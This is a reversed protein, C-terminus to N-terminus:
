KVQFTFVYNREAIPGTSSAEPSVNTITIKKNMFEVTAGLSLEVEESASGVEIRTKIKVTGAWFCSTGAPCRSDEIVKLPTIYVGNNYIRQNVSARTATKVSVPASPCLAFECNPGTRSVYSGDPCAKAEMTCAVQGSKPPVNSTNSPPTTQNNNITGSASQIPTVVKKPSTAITVATVIILVIFIFILSKKM